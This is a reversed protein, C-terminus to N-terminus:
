TYPFINEPFPDGPDDKKDGCACLMLAFRLVALLLAIIRKM